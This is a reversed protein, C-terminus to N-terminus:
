QFPLKHSNKSKEVTLSPINGYTLPVSFLMGRKDDNVSLPEAFRRDAKM